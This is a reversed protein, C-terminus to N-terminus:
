AAPPRTSPARPRCRGPADPDCQRMAAARRARERPSVARVQVRVPTRRQQRLLMGALLVAVVVTAIAALSGPRDLLGAPLLATLSWLV